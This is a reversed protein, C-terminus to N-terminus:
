DGTGYQLLLIQMKLTSEVASFNQNSDSDILDFLMYNENFVNLM